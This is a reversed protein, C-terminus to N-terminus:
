FTKPSPPPRPSPVGKEWFPTGEGLDEEKEVM